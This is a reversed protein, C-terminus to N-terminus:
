DYGMKKLQIKEDRWGKKVKVWLRLFVKSDVMREIEMRAESGVRKLVAGDKGIIIGKHSDKECYINAEINTIDHYEDYKMTIVETSVGFPIEDNMLRFVKERIIEAAIVREPQDTLTDEPYFKPGEPLHKKILDTLNNLGKGTKASIPIIEAFNAIDNAKDILPLLQTQSMEDTKNILLFIKKRQPFEPFNLFQRDDIMYMIIDGDAKAEDIVKSMYEGLKNRPSHIGPTDLFVIQADDETLVGMIKTRTTQPRSSVISVKEKLLKNMLTSKGVNPNGIISVFGSKFTM